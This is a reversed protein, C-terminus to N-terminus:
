PSISGKARGELIFRRETHPIRVPTSWDFRIDRSIHRADEDGLWLVLKGGPTLKDRAWGVLEDLQGVARATIIDFLDSPSQIDATRARVATVNALSLKRFVENLFAFKKANPEILRVDLSPRAMALPIGPFGAGTGVDALRSKEVPLMSLAFLSEGFHFRL